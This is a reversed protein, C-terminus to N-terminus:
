VSLIKFLFFNKQFNPGDEHKSFPPKATALQSPQSAPGPGAANLAVVRYQYENDAIVTRDIYTLAQWFSLM